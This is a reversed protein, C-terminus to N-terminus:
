RPGEGYYVAVRTALDDEGARIIAIERQANAPSDSAHAANVMINEGYERRVSGPLAKSPDTPGLIDRIKNVAGVGAYVLALIRSRGPAAPDADALEAQPVGSMFSVIQNFQQDGFLPGILDGLQAEVTEDLRCGLEQEIAKRARAGAPARLKDRLVERVPGYFDFAQGVSMRHVKAGIIRLGSGSFIDVIIGPRVSAFKFNDPKLMVLTQEVREDDPLDCLRDLIGHKSDKSGLWLRLVEGTAEATSSTLAAPEVWIPRGGEDRVLDGYTDRVTEASHGSARFPGVARHVKAVADEGEFLLLMVRQWKGSAPDPAFRKRVYDALLPGEEKFTSDMEYHRELMQAYAEVLEEGPGIMRTGVLELGTRMTFRSIIGGTRSKGLANPTLLAYALEKPM